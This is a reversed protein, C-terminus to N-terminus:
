VRFRDFSSNRCFAVRAIPIHWIRETEKFKFLNKIEQIFLQLWRQTM